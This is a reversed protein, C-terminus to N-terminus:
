AAASWTEFRGPDAAFLGALTPKPLSKLASWAANVPDTMGDSRRQNVWGQNM